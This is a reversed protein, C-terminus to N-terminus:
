NEDSTTGLNFGRGFNSGQIIVTEGPAPLCRSLLLARSLREFLVYVTTKGGGM